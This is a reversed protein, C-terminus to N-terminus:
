TALRPEQRHRRHRVVFYIPIAIPALCTLAVFWVIKAGVSISDVLLMFLAVLWLFFLLSVLVLSIVAGAGSTVDRSDCTSLHYSTPRGAPEGLHVPIRDM